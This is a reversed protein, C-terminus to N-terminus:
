LTDKKNRKFCLECDIYHIWQYAVHSEKHSQYEHGDSGLWVEFQNAKYGGDSLVTIIKPYKSGKLKQYEGKSIRVTENGCSFLFIFLIFVIKKM